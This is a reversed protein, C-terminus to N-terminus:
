LLRRKSILCRLTSSSGKAVAKTWARVIEVRYGQLREENSMGCGLRVGLTVDVDWKGDWRRKELAM